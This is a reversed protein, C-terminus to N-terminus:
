DLQLLGILNTRFILAGDPDIRNIPNNQVFNYPSIWSRLHALPDVRWRRILRPDYGFADFRYDTNNFNRGPQLVGGPYYDVLERKM